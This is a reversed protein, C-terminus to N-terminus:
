EKLHSLFPSSALSLSRGKKWTSYPESHGRSLLGEGYVISQAIKRHNSKEKGQRLLSSIKGPEEGHSGPPTEPPSVWSFM